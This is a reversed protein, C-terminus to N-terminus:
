CCAYIRQIEKEERFFVLYDGDFKLNVGSVIALNVFDDTEPLGYMRHLAKFYGLIVQEIFDDPHNAEKLQKFIELDKITNM